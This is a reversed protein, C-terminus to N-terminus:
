QAVTVSVNDFYADVMCGPNGGCDAKLQLTVGGSVDSGTTVPIEYHVWDSTPVPQSIIGAASTGGGTLESFFEIFIVGGVGEVSGRLDFSVTMATDPTVTGNGINAQKVVPFSAPGGPQKQLFVYKGM